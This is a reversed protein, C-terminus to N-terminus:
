FSKAYSLKLCPLIAPKAQHSEGGGGPSRGPYEEKDSRLGYLSSFLHSLNVELRANPYVGVFKEEQGSPIPPTGKARLLPPPRFDQFLRPEEM